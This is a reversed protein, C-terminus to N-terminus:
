HTIVIKFLFTNDTKIPTSDRLYEVGTMFPGYVNFLVEPGWVWSGQDFNRGGSLGAMWTRKNIDLTTQKSLTEIEKDKEAIVLDYKAKIQTEIQSTLNTDVATETDTVVVEGNPKTDVIHKKQKMNKTMTTIQKSQTDVTTQLKTNITKQEELQKTLTTTKSISPILFSIVTIVILILITYYAWKNTLLNKM